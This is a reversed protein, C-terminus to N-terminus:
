YHEHALSCPGAVGAVSHAFTSSDHEEVVQEAIRRIQDEFDQSAKGGGLGVVLCTWVFLVFVYVGVITLRRM